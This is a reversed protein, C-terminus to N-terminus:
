KENYYVRSGAPISHTLWVNGGIVCGDGIKTDGGLITANAYIVCDNGINPHRKKGKILRGDDGTEFSKAGITVGQYIKVRNGIRATEGIVVGTGHDICFYEGIEAGPHIDIGTKGHAIESMLRPLLPQKKVYLFHSLRYIMTAFFGPYSLIIEEASTAAPDGEYIAIVDTILRRKIEPLSRMFDTVIIESDSIKYLIEATVSFLGNGDKFVSPFLLSQVSYILRETNQRSPIRVNGSLCYCSKDLAGLADIVWLEEKNKDV